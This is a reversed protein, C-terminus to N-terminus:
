PSPVLARIVASLAALPQTVHRTEALAESLSAADVEHAEQWTKSAEPTPATLFERVAAIASSKPDLLLFHGEGPQLRLRAQPMRHALLAGNAAPSVPDEDGHIVLVPHEVEHLWPLSTWQSVAALQAMYGAVSPPFRLRADGARRVFEPDREAQGGAILKATALYFPRSYYRLPMSLVALAAPSGPVGGWGCTSGALVLRRVVAPSQRALEQAVAGGFSYGVVDACDCGIVSLLERVLRAFAPITAPLRHQSSRGTGPADFSILQFGRLGEVLPEWMAHNAGLGNVLLVPRGSGTTRVFIRYGAVDICGGDMTTM